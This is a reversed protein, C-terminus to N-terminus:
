EVAAVPRKRGRLRDNLSPHTDGYGTTEQLAEDRHRLAQAADLASMSFFAGISNAILTLRDCRKRQAAFFPPFEAEAEWPSQARYDFGVVEADPFPQLLKVSISASHRAPVVLVNAPGTLRSFPYKAAQDMNLAVDVTMEGEYEFDVRRRPKGAKWGKFSHQAWFDSETKMGAKISQLSKKEGTAAQIMQQRARAAELRAVGFPGLGGVVAVVDVVDGLGVQEAEFPFGLASFGGGQM